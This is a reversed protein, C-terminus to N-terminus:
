RQVLILRFEANSFVDQTKAPGSPRPPVARDGCGSFLPTVIIYDAALRDVYEWFEADNGESCSSARRGTALAVLRPKPSLLVSTAPTSEQIYRCLEAFAPDGLGERIPGTARTVFYATYSWGYLVVLLTALLQVTRRYMPRSYLDRLAVFVYFTWLPILPILLRLDAGVSLVIMFGYMAAFLEAASPSNTIRIWYGLAGLLMLACCGALALYSTLGIGWLLHRFSWLYAMATHGLIILRPGGIQDLYSTPGAFVLTNWVVIVVAGALVAALRTPIRRFRVLHLGATMAVVPLLVIAVSRTILALFLALLLMLALGTRKWSYRNCEDLFYLCLYCPLLFPLDSVLAEKFTIFYPNLAVVGIAVLCLPFPLYNRYLLVAVFLAALFCFAVEVKMMHLDPGRFRYVLSLLAPFLPPYSPPGIQPTAPNYIYGNQGASAGVAIGKAQMLYMAFDDGWYQGPRLTLLYIVGFAALILLTLAVEATGLRLSSGAASPLSM